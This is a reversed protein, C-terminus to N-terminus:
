LTAFPQRVVCALKRRAQTAVPWTRLRWQEFLELADRHRHQQDHGREVHREDSMCTREGTAQGVRLDALDGPGPMCHMELLRRREDCGDTIEQAASRRARLGCM